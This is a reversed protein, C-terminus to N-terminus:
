FVTGDLALQIPPDYTDRKEYAIKRGAAWTGGELIKCLPMESANTKLLRRVIDAIEDLLSVTLARWEVVLESDLPMAKRLLDPQKVRLAGSDLLLGGNRYEPLGTLGDLNIVSIGSDQLPEVLSYSLWQSLKHFPVIRGIGDIRSVLPHFGADGYCTGCRWIGNPWISNFHVLISRLIQSADAETQSSEELIFQLLDSPRRLHESHCLLAGLRNLLKVRGEGGILHNGASAQFAKELDRVCVEKLKAASAAFGGDDDRRALRDFFFHLSAAALGESRSLDLGSVPEAYRWRDGAGADLLVSVFVLDIATRCLATPDIHDLGHQSVLVQWLDIEGISFHRWRSHLPIDLDPYNQLCM